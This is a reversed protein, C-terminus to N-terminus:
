RPQRPRHEPRHGETDSYWGHRERWSNSGNPDEENPWLEEASPATIYEAIMFVGSIIWVLGCTAILFSTM